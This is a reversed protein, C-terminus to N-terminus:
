AAVHSPGLYAEVVHPDRQVEAPASLESQAGVRM